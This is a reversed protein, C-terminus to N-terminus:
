AAKAAQACWKIWCERLAAGFRAAQGAHDFLPSARMAERLAVGRPTAGDRRALQVAIRVYDEDSAAVWDPRGIASLLSAGVRSVHRDGALTVVPVGMWLAECTTTTGHYPFTDLAVDVRRYLALHTTTDACREVLEVREAAIGAEGLRDLWRRRTASEGLGQGKVLLRSQPVNALVRSWLGITRRSVKALDNFSGFTVADGAISEARPEPASVPPQYAWATPAFRLLRETAFRDAEGRPDAIADTLRYDMAPVGTTDPYGLYTIQVPAVRRAFVPLRNCMGTHGALDVLVDPADERLMVEIADNSRGVVNRWQDAHGRLRASMEDERFHDHYLWVEFAERDLHRLLPELFYACSHERLDPSWFAVRLRREPVPKNAFAVRPEAGLLRGYLVHEEFVTERALGEVNHLAMLRCSRADARDPQLALVRDYAAIAEDLRKLRHLAQARALSAPINEPEQELAREQCRLAEELRGMLALTLGFNCWVTASSPSGAVAKEHCAVAEELRDQTKLCYALNDWADASNPMVAVVHRLHKEAEATRGGALLALGLRMECVASARDVRHARSLLEIAAAIRSQQHAVLGSLHLADFDKPFAVRVQRYCAEAADLKGARHLAVAELLLSQRRAPSM